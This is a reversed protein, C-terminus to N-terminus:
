PRCSPAPIDAQPRGPALDRRFDALGGGETGLSSWSFYEGGAEAAM